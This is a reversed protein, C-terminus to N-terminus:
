NGGKKFMALLQKPKVPQGRYFSMMEYLKGALACCLLATLIVIALSAAGVWSSIQGLMLRSPTALIATFPVWDVWTTTIGGTQMMGGGFLCVLFSIVLAMTFLMNTSSLEEPKSALAGGIAALACYLLFGSLMICVGVIVGMPDFLGGIAGFSDVFLLYASSTEPNITRLIEAGAFFGCGLAAVWIVLQVVAALSIALVKGLMMAKPSVCVLFTDMLKSTKESIASTAVSQGYFLVMFYLTMITLYPLMMSVIEMLASSDDEDPTEIVTGTPTALEQSLDAITEESLGSKQVQIMSFQEAIQNAYLNALEADEGLMTLDYMGDVMTVLLLLDKDTMEAKAADFEDFAEFVPGESGLNLVNWEAAGPTQDVVLIREVTDIGELVASQTGAPVAPEPANDSVILDEVTPLFAPLAFLLLAMLITVARWGKTGVQHRFTFGFVTTFKNM